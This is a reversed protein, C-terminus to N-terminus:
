EVAELLLLPEDKELLRSRLVAAFRTRFGGDPAEVVADLVVRIADDAAAEIQDRQAALLPEALEERAADWVEQTLWAQWRPAEDLVAEGAATLVDDQHERWWRKASAEAVPLLKRALGTADGRVMGWLLGLRDLLDFHKKMDHAVADGLENVYPRVRAVVAKGVAGLVERAREDKRPDVRALFSPLRARVEPLVTDALLRELRASLSRGLEAAVSPPVAMQWADGLGSPSDLAILRWRQAGPFEGPAFRIRLADPEVAVVWAFPRLGRDVGAEYIPHGPVLGGLPAELPLRLDGEDSAFVDLGITQFSRGLPARVSPTLLLALLLIPVLALLVSGLLRRQARTVM